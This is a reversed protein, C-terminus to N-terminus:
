RGDGSSALVGFATNLMNRGPPERVAFSVHQFADKFEGELATKFLQAVKNPPNAFAGCGWATSANSPVGRRPRAGTCGATEM